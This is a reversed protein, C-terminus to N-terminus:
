GGTVPPFFALEDGDKLLTALDVYEQNIAALVNDPMDLNPNLQQWADNVTLEISVDLQDESCGVKDKLSAFYRVTISM